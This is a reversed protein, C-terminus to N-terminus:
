TGGSAPVFLGRLRPGLAYRPEDRKSDGTCLAGLASNWARAYHERHPPAVQDLLALLRARTPALSAAQEASLDADLCSQQSWDVLALLTEIAEPLAAEELQRAAPSPSLAVSTVRLFTVVVPEGDETVRAERRWEGILSQPVANWRGEHLYIHGLALMAEDWAFRVREIDATERGQLLAVLADRRETLMRRAEGLANDLLVREAYVRHEDSYEARLKTVLAQVMTAIIANIQSHAADDQPASLARRTALGHEHQTPAGSSRVGGQTAKPPAAVGLSEPTGDGPDTPEFDPEKATPKRAARAVPAVRAGESELRALTSPRSPTPSSPAADSGDKSGHRPKDNPGDNSM